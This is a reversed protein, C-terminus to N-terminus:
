AKPMTGRPAPSSAETWNSRLPASSRTTPAAFSSPSSPNSTKERHSKYTQIYAQNHSSTRPSIYFHCSMYIKQFNVKLLVTNKIARSMYPAPQLPTEIAVEYVRANLIRALYDQQDKLEAMKDAHSPHNSTTSSNTSSATALARRQLLLPTSALHHHHHHHHHLRTRTLIRRWGAGQLMHASYTRTHIDAGGTAVYIYIYIQQTHSTIQSTTISTHTIIPYIDNQTQLLFLSPLSWSHPGQVDVGPWHMSALCATLAWSDTWTM